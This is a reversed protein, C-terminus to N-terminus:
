RRRPFDPPPYNPLVWMISSRPPVPALFYVDTWQHWAVYDDDAYGLDILKGIVGGGTDGAIARGYNPIYVYTRLPILKPDVAVIGQRMTLGIRTRGYWPASRPTGSRIPSYSVAYMRVKRWYTVPGEPTELERLVIKRGYATMRTVPEAAVWEDLLTREAEVGDESTVQWRRRFEGNRGEQALRRTDIELEDDPVSISEFPIAEREVLTVQTVRVVRIAEEPSIARDLAPEVSDRGTVFIGLDMLAAGVTQGRTRTHTTRGDATVLVPTSREIQVRMGASVRSGLPPQVRDGLYLTLEAEQLAEGITEATTFITYPVSGDDVTLSVARRISVRVPVPDHGQWPRGRDYRLLGDPRMLRDNRVLPPLLASHEVLAGDLWVEDNEALPVGAMAILGAVTQARTYVAHLQGDAEVLGPRARDITIRLGETLRTDPTPLLRDEPRLTLGLDALLAAVDPRASHVEATQGDVTVTVAPGTEALAAMGFAALSLVAVLALIWVLHVLFPRSSM